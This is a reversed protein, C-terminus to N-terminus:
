FSYLLTICLDDQIGVYETRLTSLLQTIYHLMFLLIFKYVRLTFILKRRAFIINPIYRRYNIKASSRYVIVLIVAVKEVRLFSKGREAYIFNETRNNDRLYLLSDLSFRSSVCILVASCHGARENTRM